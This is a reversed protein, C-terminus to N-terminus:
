ADLDALRGKTRALLEFVAQGRRDAARRPWPEEGLPIGIWGGVDGPEVGSRQALRAVHGVPEGALKVVFRTGPECCPLPAPDEVVSVVLQVERSAM